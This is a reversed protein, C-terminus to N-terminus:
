REKLKRQANNKERRYRQTLRSQRELEPLVERSLAVATDVAVVQSTTITVDLPEVEPSPTRMRQPTATDPHWYSQAHHYGFWYSAVCALLVALVALVVLDQITM